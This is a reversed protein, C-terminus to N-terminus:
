GPASRCRQRRDHCESLAWPDQYVESGLEAILTGNLPPGNTTNFGSVNDWEYLDGNTQIYFDQRAGDATETKFWKEEEFHWNFGFDFRM